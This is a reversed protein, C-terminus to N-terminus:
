NFDKLIFNIFNFTLEQTFLLEYFSRTFTLSLLVRLKIHTIFM